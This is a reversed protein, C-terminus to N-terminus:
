VDFATFRGAGDDRVEKVAANIEEDTWRTANHCWKVADKRETFILIQNFRNHTFICYM